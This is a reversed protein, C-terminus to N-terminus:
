LLHPGHPFIPTEAPQHHLGDSFSFSLYHHITGSFELATESPRWVVRRKAAMGVFCSDAFV